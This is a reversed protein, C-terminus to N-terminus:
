PTWQNFTVQIPHHAHSQKNRKTRGKHDRQQRLDQPPHHSAFQHYQVTHTQAQIWGLIKFLDQIKLGLSGDSDSGARRLGYHKCDSGWWSGIFEHEHMVWCVASLFYGWYELLLSQKIMIPLCFRYEGYVLLFGRIIKIWFIIESLTHKVSQSHLSPQISGRSM